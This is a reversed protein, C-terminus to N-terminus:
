VPAVPAVPTLELSDPLTVDLLELDPSCDILRHALGAPVVVTDGAVLEHRGAVLQADADGTHEFAVSGSLVFLFVFEADHSAFRADSSVRAGVPRAVRAGALGDTAAGIGTDRHEFGVMRWPHWV